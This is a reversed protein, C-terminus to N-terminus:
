SEPLSSILVVRITAGDRCPRQLNIAMVVPGQSKVSTTRHMNHSRRPFQAFACKDEHGEALSRYVMM